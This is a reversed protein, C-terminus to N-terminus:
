CFRRTVLRAEMTAIHAERLLKGNLDVSLPRPICGKGIQKTSLKHEPEREETKNMIEFFKVVKEQERSTRLNEQPPYASPKPLHFTVEAITM